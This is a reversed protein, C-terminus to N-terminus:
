SQVKFNELWVNLQKEKLGLGSRGDLRRSVKGKEFFIVTPVAEIDYTDWLPNDYDDLQVHIVNGVNFDIIKTDFMPVFGRCYPCWSAYFLVLVRESNELIRTLEEGNDVEIMIRLNFRNKAKMFM